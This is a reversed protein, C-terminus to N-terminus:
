AFDRLVGVALLPQFRPLLPAAVFSFLTLCSFLTVIWTVKKRTHKNKAHGLEHGMVYDLQTGHLYAGFNETMAISQSSGSHM